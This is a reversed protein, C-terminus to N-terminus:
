AEAQHTKAWARDLISLMTEPSQAGPITFRRDILFYPVGEVDLEAAEAEDRRVDDAHEDSELVRRADAEPVGAEVAVAALTDHDGIPRGETFGAAFLREKMEDQRGHARALHLMRHADFTNGLRAEDFRFDIGAEAGVQIIRSMSARAQGVPIGYKRSIRDVYSGEREVPARPDLEYAKWVVDVEDAHDFRRLAEVLNRSGVYCWPCVVDSWVEIDM